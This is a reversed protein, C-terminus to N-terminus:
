VLEAYISSQEIHKYETPLLSKFHFQGMYADIITQNERMMDYIDSLKSESYGDMGILLITQATSINPVLEMALAFPADYLNFQNSASIVYAREKVCEPVYTVSHKANNSLVFVDTEHLIDANREVRAGENGVLCIYRPNNIVDFLAIHKASLFCVPIFPNRNLYAVIAGLHKIVSAGGGVLLVPEPKANIQIEPYQNTKNPSLNNQLHRVIHAISYRKQSLMAMIDKQPLSNTGSIMYPLNTGWGYKEYLPAFHALLEVVSNLNIRIDDKALYTMLLETRLNGAGRGMGMITSDIMKCGAHLAALANAFALTMNDHGHFGIPKSISQKVKAVIQPIEHPYVAGYSDVMCLMDINDDLLPLQQWFKEDSLWTSMYMVNVSVKMGLTRVVNALKAAKKIDEPATAFRILQVINGIPELLTILSFEDVDKLNLMLALKKNPACKKCQEITHMPLYAYEGMYESKTPQRYGVEVYEIPLSNVSTLYEKVLEPEFDWNTYYGGDRLTCDLIKMSM